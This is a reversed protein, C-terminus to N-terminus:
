LERGIRVRMSLVKTIGYDSHLCKNCYGVISPSIRNGFDVMTKPDIDVKNDTM